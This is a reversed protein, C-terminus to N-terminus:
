DALVAEWVDAGAYSVIVRQPELETRGFADFHYIRTNSPGGLASFTLRVWAKPDKYQARIFSTAAGVAREVDEDETVNTRTREPSERSM